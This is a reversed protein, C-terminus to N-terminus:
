GSGSTAQALQSRLTPLVAAGAAARAQAQAQRLAEAENQRYSEIASKVVAYISTPVWVTQSAATPIPTISKQKGGHSNIAEAVAPM